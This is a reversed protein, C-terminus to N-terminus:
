CAWAYGGLLLLLSSCFVRSWVLAPSYSLIASHCPIPLSNLCFDQKYFVSSSIDLSVHRKQISHSKTFNISQLYSPLRWFYFKSLQIIVLKSTLNASDIHIKGMTNKITSPHCWLISHDGTNRLVKTWLKM